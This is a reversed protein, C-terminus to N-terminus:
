CPKQTLLDLDLTSIACALTLTQLYGPTPPLPTESIQAPSHSQVTDM